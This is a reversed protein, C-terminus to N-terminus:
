KKDTKIGLEKGGLPNTEKEKIWQEVGKHLRNEEEDRIVQNALETIQEKTMM